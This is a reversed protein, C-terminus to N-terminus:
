LIVCAYWVRSNDESMVVPVQGCPVTYVLEKRNTGLFKFYKPFSSFILYKFNHIALSFKCNIVPFVHPPPPTLDHPAGIDTQSCVVLIVQLVSLWFQWNGNKVRLRFCWICWVICWHHPGGHESGCLEGRRLYPYQPWMYTKNRRIVIANNM